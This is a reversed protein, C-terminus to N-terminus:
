FLSAADTVPHKSLFKFSAQRFDYRFHKLCLSAGKFYNKNLKLSNGFVWKAFKELFIELFNIM